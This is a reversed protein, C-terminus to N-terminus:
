LGSISNAKLGKEGTNMWWKAVEMPLSSLRVTQAIIFGSPPRCEGQKKRLDTKQIIGRHILKSVPFQLLGGEGFDTCGVGSHVPLSHSGHIARQNLNKEEKLEKIMLSISAWFWLRCFLYLSSLAVVRTPKVDNNWCPPKFPTGFRFYSESQTSSPM